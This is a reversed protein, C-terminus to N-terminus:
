GAGFGSPLSIKTWSEWCSQMAAAPACMNQSVRCLRGASARRAPKRRWCLLGIWWTTEDPYGRLADLLGVLDDQQNIIGFVFHDDQSKGPPIDQFEEAGANPGAARGDVLLMFDLCKDYLMQIAGSDEFSLPHVSYNQLGIDFVPETKM